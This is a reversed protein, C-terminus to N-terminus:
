DAKKVPKPEFERLRICEDRYWKLAAAATKGAAERRIIDLSGCTWTDAPRSLEAFVSDLFCDAIKGHAWAPEAAPEPVYVVGDIEIKM